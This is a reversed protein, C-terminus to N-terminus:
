SSLIAFGSALLNYVSSVWIPAERVLYCSSKNRRAIETAAEFDHEDITLIKLMILYNSM